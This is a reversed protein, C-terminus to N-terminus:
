HKALTDRSNPSVAHKLSVYDPYSFPAYPFTSQRQYLEVIRDRQPIPARKLMIADILSFVATNAGIGLALSVIAVTTFGVHKRSRRMAYRVDAWARRPSLFQVVGRRPELRRTAARRSRVLDRLARDDLRALLQREAEAAGVRPALDDFEAELHQALEEILEAEDEPAVRSATARARLERRWDPM